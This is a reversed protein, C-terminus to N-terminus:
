ITPSIAGFASADTVTALFRLAGNLKTAEVAAPGVLSEIVSGASGTIM